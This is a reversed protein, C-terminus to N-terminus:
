YKVEKVQRYPIGLRHLANELLLVQEVDKDDFSVGSPLRHYIAEFVNAKEEDSINLIQIENKASNRNVQNNEAIYPIEIYIM